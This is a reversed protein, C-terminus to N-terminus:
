NFDIIGYNFVGQKYESMKPHLVGEENNFKCTSVTSEHIKGKKNTSLYVNNYIPM